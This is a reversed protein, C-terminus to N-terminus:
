IDMSRKRKKINIILESTLLKYLYYLRHQGDICLYIMKKEDRWYKFYELDRELQEKKTKNINSKLREEIWKIQKDLVILQFTDKLEYGFLINTIYEAKEDESWEQLYRQLEKADIGIKNYNEHVWQLNINHETCGIIEGRNLLPYKTELYNKETLKQIVAKLIPDNELIVQQSM